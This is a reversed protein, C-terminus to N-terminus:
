KKLIVFVNFGTGTAPLAPGGIPAAVSLGSMPVSVPNGDYTASIVPTAKFDQANRIEYRDGANLFSSLNVSLSAKQDWNYIILHARTSDYSNPRIIIDSGKPKGQTYTSNADLGTLMRWIALSFFNIPNIEFPLNLPNTSYYSNQDWNYRSTLRLSSQNLKVFGYGPSFIKNRKFTLSQWNYASVEGDDDGGLINDTFVLDQNTPNAYNLAIGGNFFYNFTISAGSVSVNNGGIFLNPRQRTAGPSGNGFAANGTVNFGKLADTSGAYAHIGYGYNNFVINDRILKTNVTNQM